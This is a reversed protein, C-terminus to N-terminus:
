RATLKDRRSGKSVFISVIDAVAYAADRASSASELALARTEESATALSAQLAADGDKAALEIAHEVSQAALEAAFTEAAAVPDLQVVGELVAVKAAYAVREIFPLLPYEPPAGTSGEAAVHGTPDTYRLPNGLAYAYPNLTQPNKLNGEWTDAQAFVGVGPLYSRAKFNYLWSYDQEQGTFKYTDNDPENGWHKGGYPRYAQV